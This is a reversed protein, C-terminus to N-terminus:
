VQDRDDASQEDAAVVGGAEAPVQEGGGDPARHDGGDGGWQGDGGVLAPDLGLLAAAGAGDLGMPDPPVAARGAAFAAGLRPLLGPLVGAVDRDHHAGGDLGAAVGFLRVASAEDGAALAALGVGDAIVPIVRLRAAPHTNLYRLARAHEALGGAVDGMAVLARGLGTRALCALPQPDPPTGALRGLVSRYLAASAAFEGRARLIGARVIRAHTHTDPGLTDDLLREAAELQALAGATEGLDLRLGALRLRLDASEPFATLADLAGTVEGLLAAVRPRDGDLLRLGALSLAAKVVSFHDGLGRALGLAGELDAAAAGRDEGRWAFQARMMLAAAALWPDDGGAYRDLRARAAGPEGALMHLAAAIVQVAVFASGEAEAADVLASMRAAAEGVAATDAFEPAWGALGSSFVCMAYPGAAGPPPADALALARRSWVMAEERQNLAWWRRCLGACLRLAGVADGAEILRTLAALLDEHARAFRALSVLDGPEHASLELYHAAHRDRYRDYVRVSHDRARDAAFARITDLMRYGGPVAVVFSKDVLSPLTELGYEGCVGEVAALDATGAFVSLRAAFDKEADTLLDWSWEVVARLTRHRPLATRSGGTLLAFRDDLRAALEGPPLWRLRAAALEVALPLGDLRAVVAAAAADDLVAAPAAARARERLLRVADAGPLGAVPYLAEGTVSLPERSTALVTLRPCSTLLREALAAAAGIVHECNDLILLTRRDGIARAVREAVPVPDAGLVPSRPDRVSLVRAVARGVEGAEAVPALEALWVGGPVAVGRGAELALRTKGVGGPGLLTVLRDRELLGAIAALDDERGVLGTLPLPLNGRPDGPSEPARLVALHAASLQPGPAAGLDEALAARADEFATLAEASRGLAHLVRVHLARLTERRPHAAAEAALLAAVEGARGADLCAHAYDEVTSLRLEALRAREPGAVREDLDALAEGRWLSLAEGLVGARDGAERATALLRGFAALDTDAALRYGNEAAPLVGAGLSRRLRSVLAQLANAPNAPPEEWLLGILTASPVARPARWALYTLLARPRAGGVAVPVGDEGRAELPGLVGIRM